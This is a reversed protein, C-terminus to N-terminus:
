DNEKKRDLNSKLETEYRDLRETFTLILPELATQLTGKYGSLWENLKNKIDEVGVVLKELQSKNHLATAVTLETNKEVVDIKRSMTNYRDGLRELLVALTNLTEISRQNTLLQQQIFGKVTENNETLPTSIASVLKEITQVTFTSYNQQLELEKIKKQNGEEQHKFELEKDRLELEKVKIQNSAIQKAITEILKILLYVFLLIFLILAITIPTENDIPVLENLSFM